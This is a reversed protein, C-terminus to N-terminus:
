VEGEGGGAMAEYITWPARAPKKEPTRPARKLPAPPSRLTQNEDELEANRTEVDRRARDSEALRRRLEVLEGADAEVVEAALVQEAAPPAPGAGAQPGTGETGETGKTETADM